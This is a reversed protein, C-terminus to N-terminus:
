FPIESKECEMAWSTLASIAKEEKESKFQPTFTVSTERIMEKQFLRQM